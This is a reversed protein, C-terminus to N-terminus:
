SATNTAVDQYTAIAIKVNVNGTSAFKYGTSTGTHYYQAYATGSYVPMLFLWQDSSTTNIAVAANMSTGRAVVTNSSTSTSGRLILASSASTSGTTPTSATYAVLAMANATNTADTGSYTMTSGNALSAWVIQCRAPLMFPLSAYAQTTATIAAAAEASFRIADGYWGPNINGATSANTSPM